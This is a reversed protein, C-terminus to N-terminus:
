AKQTSGTADAALAHAGTGPSRLSGKGGGEKSRRGRDDESFGLVAHHPMKATYNRSSNDSNAKLSLATSIAM